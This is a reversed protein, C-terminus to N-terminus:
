EWKKLAYQWLSKLHPKLWLHDIHERITPVDLWEWIEKWSGRELIRTILWDKEYGEKQLLMQKAKERSIDYDWFFPLRESNM